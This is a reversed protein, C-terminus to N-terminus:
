VLILREFFYQSIKKFYLAENESTRNKDVWVVYVNGDEIVVIQPSSPNLHSGISVTEAVLAVNDLIEKFQIENEAWVVYVNGDEAGM